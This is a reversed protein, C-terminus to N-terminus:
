RFNDNDIFQVEPEIDIDYKEKVAKQLTKVMSLADKYTANDFNHMINPHTLTMKIGNIIYGKFGLEELLTGVPLKNGFVVWQSPIRMKTSEPLKDWLINKFLSGPSAFGIPYVSDRKTGIQNYKQIDEEMKQSKTIEFNTQLILFDRNKKFISERYGFECQLGSLTYINPIIENPENALIESIKIYDVKKVSDKIETGYAGANGITAGGATGPIRNLGVLDGSGLSVSTDIVKQLSVGSQAVILFNEHDVKTEIKDFHILNIIAQHYNLTTDAFVSNSGGGLVFFPLNNAKCLKIAKVIEILNTPFFVTEINGGIGITTYEKINKNSLVKM